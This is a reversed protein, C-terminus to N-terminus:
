LEIMTLARHVPDSTQSPAVLLHTTELMDPVRTVEAEDHTMAVLALEHETFTVHVVVLGSLVEATIRVLGFAVAYLPIFPPGEGTEIEPDNPVASKEKTFLEFTSAVLVTVAAHPPVSVQFPVLHTAVTIDPVRIAEVEVQVISALWPAHGTPATVRVHVVVLGIPVDAIV